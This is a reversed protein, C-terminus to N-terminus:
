ESDEEDAEKLWNIFPKAAKRVKKSVDKPVYKKSVKSGWELIVEESILDKDYVKVLVKPLVPILSPNELGLYRELGGLFAKESKENHNILKALLGLHEEIQELIDDDFLVQALVQITEPSEIIDLEAIKKYIEVDSPLDDKSDKGTNLLWEGLDNFKSQGDNLSLAELERARAEIAEKSMDVAWDDDNVEITDNGLAAAEANIKKTLADDDDETALPQSGDENAQGSAIDSISKGGGVVNATATASKKGKKGGKAGDPPNKLIYSSLKHRPDIDAINGCAQCNRLLINKDKIQIQTEPNRCKPCLVFKSIFGDLSDQLENANHSGNVLNREENTQAGLEYGFYKILYSTPRGLARAVEPLNVIATKIGNGRGEVKSQILPMKYRYFPDTNDRCINVFSM